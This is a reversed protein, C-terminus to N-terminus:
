VTGNHFVICKGILRDIRRHCIRGFIVRRHARLQEFRHIRACKIRPKVLDIGHNRPEILADLHTKVRGTRAHRRYTLQGVLQAHRTEGHDIGVFFHHSGTRQGRAGARTKVHRLRNMHSFGLRIRCLFIQECKLFGTHHIRFPQQAM